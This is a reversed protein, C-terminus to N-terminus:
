DDSSLKEDLVKWVDCSIKGDINSDVSKYSKRNGEKTDKFSLNFRNWLVKLEDESEIELTLAFPKFEKKQQTVTIKM